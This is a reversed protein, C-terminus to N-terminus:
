YSDTKICAIKIQTETNKSCSHQINKIKEESEYEGDGAQGAYLSHRATM